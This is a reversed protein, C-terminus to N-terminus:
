VREAFAVVLVLALALVALVLLLDALGREARGTAPRNTAAFVAVVAGIAGVLGFCEVLTIAGDAAATVGWTSVAGLLAAIAKAYLTV